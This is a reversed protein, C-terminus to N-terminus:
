ENLLTMLNVSHAREQSDFWSVNVTIEKMGAQPVGDEVTWSRSYGPAAEDSGSIASESDMNKLEEIKNEALTTAETMDRAFENSQILAAMLTAMGSALIGFVVTAVILEVLTFGKEKLIRSM